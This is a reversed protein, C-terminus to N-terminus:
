AAVPRGRELRRLRKGAKELKAKLEANEKQLQKARTQEPEQTHAQALEALLLQDAAQDLWYGM